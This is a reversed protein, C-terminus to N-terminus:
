RRSLTTSSSVPMPVTSPRISCPLSGININASLDKRELKAVESAEPMVVKVKNETERMQTTVMFFFLLMFVIDSLSNSSAQPVEKKNSSSGFKSM